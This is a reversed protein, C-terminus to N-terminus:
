QTTSCSIRERVQSHTSFIAIITLNTALFLDSIKFRFLFLTYLANLQPWIYVSATLTRFIFKPPIYGQYIGYTPLNLLINDTKDNKVLTINRHPSDDYGGGLRWFFVSLIEFSHWDPLHCILYSEIKDIHIGQFNQFRHIKCGLAM